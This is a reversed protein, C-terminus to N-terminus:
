RAPAAFAPWTALRWGARTHVWRVTTRSIIAGSPSSLAWLQLHARGHVTGVPHISLGARSFGSFVAAEFERRPGSGPAALVRAAAAPGAELQSVVATPSLASGSHTPVTVPPTPSTTATSAVTTSTTSGSSGRLHGLAVLIVIVLVVAILILSRRNPAAPSDARPTSTGGGRRFRSKAPASAYPDPFSAAPDGGPAYYADPTEPAAGQDWGASQDWGAGQDWDGVPSPPAGWADTPASTPAFLSPDAVEYNQGPLARFFVGETNLAWVYGAADTVTLQALRAEAADTKSPDRMVEDFLTEYQSHLHALEPALQSYDPQPM